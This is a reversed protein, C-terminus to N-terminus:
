PAAFLAFGANALPQDNGNVVEARIFRGGASEPFEISLLERTKEGQKYRYVVGSGLYNWEQGDNSFSVRVARYFELSSTNLRLESIPQNSSSLTTRWASIGADTSSEESFAAPVEKATYP